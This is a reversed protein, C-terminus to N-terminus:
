DSGAATVPNFHSGGPGPVHSHSRSYLSWVNVRQMWSTTGIASGVSVDLHGDPVRHEARMAVLVPEPKRPLGGSTLAALARDRLWGRDKGTRGLVDHRAEVCMSPRGREVLIPERRAGLM